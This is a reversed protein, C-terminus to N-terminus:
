TGTGRELRRLRRPERCVDQMIGFAVDFEGALDGVCGGVVWADVSASFVALGARATLRCRLDPADLGRRRAVAHAVADLWGLGIQYSIGRLMPSSAVAESTRATRDTDIAVIWEALLAQRVAELDSENTPREVIARQLGPLHDGQESLVVDAKSPFYRFFTTTSVEARDAIQEVTTVDYGQAAFLALAADEIARRTKVKKRSRLGEPGRAEHVFVPQSAFVARNGYGVGLQSQM